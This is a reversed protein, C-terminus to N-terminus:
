KKKFTEKTIACNNLVLKSGFPEADLYLVGQIVNYSYTFGIEYEKSILIERKNINIEKELQITLGRDSLLGYYPKDNRWIYINQMWDHEVRGPLEHRIETIKGQLSGVQYVAIKLTM